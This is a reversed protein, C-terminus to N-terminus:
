KILKNDINDGIKLGKPQYQKGKKIAALEVELHLKHALHNINELLEGETIGVITVDMTQKGAIEYDGIVIDNNKLSVTYRAMGSLINFFEEIKM